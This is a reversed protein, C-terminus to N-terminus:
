THICPGGVLLLIRGILVVTQLALPHCLGAFALPPNTSGLVKRSVDEAM